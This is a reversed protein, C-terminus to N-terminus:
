IRNKCIKVMKQSVRCKASVHIWCKWRSWATQNCSWNGESSARIWTSSLLTAPAKRFFIPSGRSNDNLLGYVMYKGYILWINVM